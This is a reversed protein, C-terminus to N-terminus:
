VGAGAGAGTTLTRPLCLRNKVNLKRYVHTLHQEVTSVTIFLRRSIERNTLGEAALEAVRLESKTLSAITGPGRKAGNERPTGGARSKSALREAMEKHAHSKELDGLEHFTRSLGLAVKSMSFDDGHPLLLDFARKLLAPRGPLPETQALLAFASARVRHDEEHALDLQEQLLDRAAEQVGIRLLATAMPSRWDHFGPVDMGWEKLLNACLELDSMAVHPSDAFLHYSARARLYGLCHSSQFMADPVERHLHETAEDMDGLLVASMILTGLPDGIAVGWSRPPLIALAERALDRATVLDGQRLAIEALRSTLVARWTPMAREEAEAVLTECATRAEAYRESYLLILLAAELVHFTADSPRTTKLLHRATAVAEERPGGTLLRALQTGARARVGALPAGPGAGIDPATPGLVLPRLSPFTCMLLEHESRIEPQLAGAGEGSSREMMRAVEDVRGSWTLLHMLTLSDRVSLLGCRYADMLDELHQAATMPDIRWKARALMTIIRARLTEDTSLDLALNLRTIVDNIEDHALDTEASDLLLEVTWSNSRGDSLLAPITEHRHNQGPTLHMAHIARVMLSRYREPTLTSLIATRAAGLRFSRDPSLIGIEELACLSQEVHRASINFMCKLLLPAASRLRRSTELVAAAEAVEVTTRNCRRLCALVSQQYESGAVITEGSSASGKVDEILCRLLLPNGGVVKTYEAASANEAASGLHFSLLSRVGDESLPNLRLRTYLHSRLTEVHFLPDAPPFHPSRSLVLNLGGGRWGAIIQQLLALSPADAYQIDDITVLLPTERVADSLVSALRDGLEIRPLEHTDESAAATDLTMAELRRAPEPSIVGDIGAQHLLRRVVGFSVSANMPSNSVRLHPISARAALRSVFHVLETKGSGTGGDIVVFSPRGKLAGSFAKTLVSIEHDRELLDM